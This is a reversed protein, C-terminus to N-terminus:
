NINFKSINNVHTEMTNNDDSKGKGQTVRAKQSAVTQWPSNKKKM